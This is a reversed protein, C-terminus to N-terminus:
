RGLFVSVNDSELNSTAQGILDPRRDNDIDGIAVNNAARVSIPSGEAPVLVPPGAFTMMVGGTLLLASLFLIRM